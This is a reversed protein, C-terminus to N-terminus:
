PGTPLLAGCSACRAGPYTREGCASCRVLEDPAAVRAAPPPGTPDPARPLRMGCRDCIRGTAQIHQCYRCPIPGPPLPTREVEAERGRDMEPMGGASVDPVGAARTSELEPDAISAPPLAPAAAFRTPELETLPQVPVMVGAPSAFTHGCVDCSSDLVSAECLPCTRM